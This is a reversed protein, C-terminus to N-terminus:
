DAYLESFQQKSGDFRLKVTGTMGARNKPIIIEAIGKDASEPNYLEDRYIFLIVDADQELSGSDRLDSPMPRKDARSELNRNLQSLALIPINLEKSIVKLIRSVEGVGESLSAGKRIVMKILQIYDIIALGVGHKRVARAVIARIQDITRNSEDDVFLGIGSLWEAAADLRDPDGRSIRGSTIGGYNISGIRALLRELLQRRSMELSIFLTPVGCNIASLAVELSLATKGAGPRAALLWFQNGQLGNTFKDIARFGLSVGAVYNDGHMQIQRQREYIQEVTARVETGIPEIDAIRSHASVELLAREASAVLTIPDDVQTAGIEAIANGAVVLHRRTALAMLKAAYLPLAEISPCQNPLAVVYSIGGYRDSDERAGIEDFVTQLDFGGAAHLEALLEFLAVHKPSHLGAVSFSETFEDFAARGGVLLGGLFAREIETSHPLAHQHAHKRRPRPSPLNM